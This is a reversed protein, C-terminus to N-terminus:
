KGVPRCDAPVRCADNCLLRCSAYHIVGVCGGGVYAKWEEDM